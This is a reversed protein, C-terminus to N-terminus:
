VNANIAKFFSLLLRCLKPPPDNLIPFIDIPHNPFKNKLYKFLYIAKSRTLPCHFIVHNADQYPDGCPCSGSAIYRKRYLSHNLNYHNSRLRNILTIENRTLGLKDFWPKKKHNFYHQAYKLGKNLFSNNMYEKYKDDMRDKLNHYLDTFPVKFDDKQGEKRADKAIRDVRENGDIGCHSPIWFFSVSLGLIAIEYLKSKILAILYNKQDIKSSNIADLVSRADSFIVSKQLNNEKILSLVRVIAWAEASFVSTDSPLKIAIKSNRTPSYVGAGVPEDNSGKSGDTYFVTADKIMDHTAFNFAQNAEHYSTGPLIRMCLDFYEPRSIYSHFDYSLAPPLSSRYINRIIYRHTIYTSYLPINKFAKIKKPRTHISYKIRNFSNIVPNNYISFSKYIYKLNNFKFRINLPFERSEHLIINIPTSNRYGMAKRIAAFQLRQLVKFVTKNGKLNFISSGYEITSRFVSRYIDLLMKPHAGWKTSSLSAIISIVKRGKVTLENLHNRGSLREDIVVGLFRLSFVRPIVVNDIKLVVRPNDPSRKRHFILYQSKSPALELGRNLLYDHIREITNQLIELVPDVGRGSAFVVLDDAYQLMKVNKPICKHINRLYINFLMPSSVSGQPTGRRSVFPTESINGERVVRVNRSFTLNEYFKRMKAPLGVSELEGILITPLLNDFAGKIDLFVAITYLNDLFATHIYNSLITINDICAKNSRFGFQTNPIIKNNELHWKLRYYLVKEMTRLVCSTISIPRVASGNAKPILVVLSQKWSEPFKGSNFIRNFLGTLHNLHAQPLHKLIKFDIQDLGPSSKLKSDELALKVEKFNIPDDMWVQLNSNCLDRLKMTELSYEPAPACSPPCIKNIAEDIKCSMMQSDIIDDRIRRNKFNKVLSWIRSIPTKYNFSSCFKSWGLKKQRKLTRRCMAVKKKYLIYSELNMQDYFNKLARERERVANHCVDNWWPAPDKYRRACRSAIKTSRSTINEIQLIIDEIFADYNHELDMNIPYKVLDFSNELHRKFEILERDSLKIKYKFTKQIPRTGRVVVLLPFHDSGMLDSLTHSFCLPSILPSALALDIVSASVSLTRSFTHKGDNLIGFGLGSIEAALSRGTSNIDENGWMIHHANFDGVVIMHPYRNQLDFINRFINAPTYMNPHRYISLILLPQSKLDIILGLIEISQHNIHSLDISIVPLKSNIIICLGRNRNSLQDARLCYFENVRFKCKPTLLTEQLCIIDHNKALFQIEPIKGKAGRCNWSILRLDKKNLNFM